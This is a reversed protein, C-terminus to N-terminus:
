EETKTISINVKLPSVLRINESLNFEVEAEFVGESLTEWEREEMFTNLDIYGNFTEANVADVEAKLGTLEIAHEALSDELEVVYGAPAGQIRIKDAALTLERNAEKEIYVTVEAKGRFDDNALVVGEPLYDEVEINVMMNESQGTINLAEPPIVIANIGALTEALGGITIVQPTSDIEGTFLYDEAPAGMVSYRIPVTKTALIEVKVLVSSVNLSINENTIEKGEANYLIVDSYESINSNSDTVDVRVRASAIQSIVSEPGSIEIRNQDPTVSNIIYGSETEGTTEVSLTLRKTKKEEINLKLIETSGSISSIEDNYRLSYFRIEVTNAVTLNSFDAEAVIDSSSLEDRITKKAVITVSRITDTRDLIEYVMNEDTLVETNVLRVPINYFTKRDEPNEINMVVLWLLFAAVLSFLKLSWNNLLKKGIKKMKM